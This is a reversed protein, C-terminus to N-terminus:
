SLNKARANRIDETSHKHVKFNFPFATNKVGLFNLITVFTHQQNKEIEELDVVKVRSFLKDYDDIFLQFYSYEKKVEKILIKLSEQHDKVNRVFFLIKVDGLCDKVRKAANRDYATCISFDLNTKGEKFHKVYESMNKNFGEDSEKRNFIKRTPMKNFYHIENKVPYDYIHHTRMPIHIEPHQNLVKAIFTTGCRPFGPCFVQPIM